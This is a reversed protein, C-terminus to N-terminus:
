TTEDEEKELEDRCGLVTAEVIEKLVAKDDIGRVDKLYLTLNMRAVGSREANRADRGPLTELARYLVAQQIQEAQLEAAKVDERFKATVQPGMPGVAEVLRRRVTRIPGIVEKRWGEVLRDLRKVGAGDLRVGSFGVWCCLLMLNVDAGYQDQTELCAERVASSSYASLSFQWFPNDLALSEAAPPFDEASLDPGRDDTM